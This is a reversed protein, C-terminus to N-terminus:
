QEDGERLELVIEVTKMPIKPKCTVNINGFPDIEVTVEKPSLGNEECVMRKIRTTATEAKELVLYELLSALSTEDTM